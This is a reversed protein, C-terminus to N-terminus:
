NGNFRGLGFRALDDPISDGSVLDVCIQGLLPGFKFGHGSCASIVFAEKLGPVADIIFDEDPTRTYLCVKEYLIDDSLWPFRERAFQQLPERDADRVRRDVSDLDVIDGGAHQALKVGPVDGLRPFGYMWNSVDAWAPFQGIEFAQSNQAPRLHIYTKRVVALPLNLGLPQILRGAWPGACILLKDVEFQEGAETRVKVGGSAPPTIASIATNELIVAGHGRALIAAARVAKSARAFGMSPEFLAIEGSMLRFAPYRRNCDAAELVQYDVGQGALSRHAQQIDPHNAQGFLLGGIPAFIEDNPFAAQLEHWLPYAAAMLATYFADPYVRRVIRSDGYSSGNDHDLSFQEFVVVEHGAKALRWAAMSGAVGLGIIAVRM